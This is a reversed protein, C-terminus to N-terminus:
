VIIIDTIKSYGTKLYGVARRDLLVDKSQLLPNTIIRTSTNLKLMWAAPIYVCLLVSCVGTGSLM